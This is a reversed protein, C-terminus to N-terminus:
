KKLLYEFQLHTFVHLLHTFMPFIGGVDGGVTELTDRCLLHVMERCM